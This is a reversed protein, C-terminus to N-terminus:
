EFIKNESHSSFNGGFLAGAPMLSAIFSAQGDSIPFVDQSPDTENPRLLHLGPGSWGIATGMVLGGITASFTAFYQPWYKVRQDHDRDANTVVQVDSDIPPYSSEIRNNTDAAMNSRSGSAM